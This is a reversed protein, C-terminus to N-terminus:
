LRSYAVEALKRLQDMSLVTEGDTDMYTEILVAHEGKRFGFIYPKASTDPNPGIFSEDGVPPTVPESETFGDTLWGDWTEQSELVLMAVLKGTSDAINVDGGAGASPDKPVVKLGTLDSVKEIDSPTLLKAADAAATQSVAPKEPPGAPTKKVTAPGCGVLAGCLALVVTVFALQRSM